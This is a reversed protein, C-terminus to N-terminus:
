IQKSMDLATLRRSNESFSIAGLSIGINLLHIRYSFDDFYESDIQEYATPSFRFTGDKLIYLANLDLADNLVQHLDYGINFKGETIDNKAVNYSNMPTASVSTLLLSSLKNRFSIEKM